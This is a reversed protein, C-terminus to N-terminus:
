AFGYFGRIADVNRRVEDLGFRPYTSLLICQTATAAANPCNRAFPSFCELEACNRLHQVAVDRGAHVMHRILEDRNPVQLPYYTYIHSGDEVLPPVIVGPLESLGENYARAAAIRAENFREVEALQSCVIRAQAGSMKHKYEDPLTDKRAPDLEIMVKRNFFGIDHLYAYRFVWYTFTKFLPPWTAIDSALGKLTKSLLRRGGERTWEAMIARVKENVFAHPTVLMGGLFSNVNKYLGFSFIGADGFTGVASGNLDTGFAQACDEILRLKHRDCLVRFAPMDCVLGHLHTVLVADTQDDILREVAAADINCTKRDIDAFVPIAGACLVMNVVDSLTYPSLIVKRGPTVLARIALYIGVRDQPVCVAHPTALQRCIDTELLQRGAADDPFGQLVDKFVALYSAPKTYLRYRPQPAYPMAITTM